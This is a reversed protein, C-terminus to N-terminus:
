RRGRYQMEKHPAKLPVRENFMIIDGEKCKCPKVTGNDLTKGEGVFIVKGYATDRNVDKESQGALFLGSKTKQLHVELKLIVLRDSIPIM